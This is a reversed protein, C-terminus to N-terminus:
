GASHVSHLWDQHKLLGEIVGIQGMPASALCYLGAAMGLGLILWGAWFVSLAPAIAIVALGTSNMACGAELVPRGVHRAIVRGARPSAFGAVLLGASLAGTISTLSWGTEAAIPLALVTVLYYTSGWTFIMVVGLASIVPWRRAAPVATRM